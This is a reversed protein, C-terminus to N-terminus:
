RNGSELQRPTPEGTSLNGPQPTPGFSPFFSPRRFEPIIRRPERDRPPRVGGTFEHLVDPQVVPRQRRTERPSRLSGQQPESPSSSMFRGPFLRTRFPNSRGGTFAAQPEAPAQNRDARRRSTREGDQHSADAGEPRPKPIYYDAKCLPCCARRSTLWPDVCSAHFAHGCALGRVDDDDEIMDLCIACSDGPNALLEAPLATQIQDDNDDDDLLHDDKNSQPHHDESSRENPEQNDVPPNASSAPKEDPPSAHEAHQVVPSSPESITNAPDKAGSSATAEGPTEPERSDAAAVAPTATNSGVEQAKDGPATIGGETPLGEDARTARWAKYKILPFRNNVEDMTM